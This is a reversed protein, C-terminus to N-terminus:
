RIALPYRLPRGKRVRRDNRDSTGCFKQSALSQAVKGSGCSAAGVHGRVRGDASPCGRGLPSPRLPSPTTRNRCPHIGAREGLASVEVAGNPSCLPREAGPRTCAVLVGAPRHPVRSCNLGGQQHACVDFVIYAGGASVRLTESIRFM